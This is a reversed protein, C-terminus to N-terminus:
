SGIEIATRDAHKLKGITLREFGYLGCAANEVREYLRSSAPIRRNFTAPAPRNM